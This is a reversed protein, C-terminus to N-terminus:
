FSMPILECINQQLRHTGTKQKMDDRTQQSRKMEKSCSGTSLFLNAARLLSCM